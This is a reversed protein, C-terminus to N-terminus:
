LKKFYKQIAKFIEEYSKDDKFLYKYKDTEMSKKVEDWTITNCGVQVWKNEYIKIPFEYRDPLCVPPETVVMDSMVICDSGLEVGDEVVAHGAIRINDGILRVGSGIKSYGMVLINNGEIVVDSDLFPKGHIRIKNGHIKTRKSVKPNGTFRIDTGNIDVGDKIVTDDEFSIDGEMKIDKPVTSTKSKYIGM